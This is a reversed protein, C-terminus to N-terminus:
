LQEPQESSLIAAQNDTPIFAKQGSNHGAILELAMWIDHLKVFYATFEQDLGLCVQKKGALLPTAGGSRTFM